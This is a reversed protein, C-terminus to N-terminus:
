EDRKKKREKRASKNETARQLKRRKAKRLTFFALWLICLLIISLFYSMGENNLWLDLGMSLPEIGSLIALVLLLQNEFKNESKSIETNHKEVMDELIEKSRDYKERISDIVFAKAIKWASVRVTPFYFQQYDTFNMAYASEDVLASIIRGADDRFPNRRENEIEEQVRNYMKSVSADQLLLMEVFFIEVAQSSIREFLDNEINDTIEIMTAESVYVKATDYQAVNNSIIDKFHSGMIKGMPREENVLINLLLEESIKEYSFVMSRRTGYQKIGIDECLGNITTDKGRYRLNLFNGCYACLIEHTSALNAPIYIDAVCLKTKNHHMLTLVARQVYGDELVIEIDGLAFRCTDKLFDSNFESLTTKYIKDQLKRGLFARKADGPATKVFHGPILLHVDAMRLSQCNNRRQAFAQMQRDTAYENNESEDAQYISFYTDIGDSIRKRQLLLVDKWQDLSWLEEKSCEIIIGTVSGESARLFARGDKNCHASYGRVTYEREVVTASPCIMKINTGDFEGFVFVKM